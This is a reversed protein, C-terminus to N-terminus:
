TFPVVPAMRALADLPIHCAIRHGSAPTVVPPTEEECISGLKRPCRAHFPCGQDTAAGAVIDDRLRIRPRQRAQPEVLPIASLLAETYPHYPPHLVAASPGEECIAGAYMVAIRDAIHAVVALDHTIFLYALGFADRLEALLNLVTAQVSVDLASVAEDCVIFDPGSALARAIGVRQKEGGSLQHPFRAAYPPALGVLSLLRGVEARRAEATLSRFLVLPREITQGVTRRPNLSSVPNQFVIQARQRLRRDVDGTAETVDEGAFLVRGASPALLRVLIRGLTTKGCGSEGVMGVIEGAGITLTVGNLARAVPPALTIRPLRRGDFTLRLSALLGGLPFRKEVGEIRVLDGGARPAASATAAAAEPEPWPVARLATAKWCRVRREGGLDVLAQAQTACLPEAFPCRPAFACGRDAEGVSAPTGPIAPLRRRPRARFRPLSVMLGKTYPHDPGLLVDDTAGYEVVEGAYLVCVNDSLRSVIGLNHTIFLVALRHSQRLAAVLDLIQAEVTVDLATTPEDLIMLDPECALAVAILARQQMGGSLQHPYSRAVARPQRIGVEHLLSVAAELAPARAMGKHQVLPEAVQLGVSLAPNMSSFPDQFVTSIRSGRFRAREAPALAGLDTGRFDIRGGEVAAEAPLLDLVALAATSKGSGSEGVLALVEGEAIPFSVERLAQVRRHVTAYSVTLGAVEIVPTSV